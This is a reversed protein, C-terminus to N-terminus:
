IFLKRLIYSQVDRNIHIMPQIDSPIVSITKLFVFKKACYYLDNKLQFMWYFIPSFFIKSVVKDERKIILGKFGTMFKVQPEHSGSM